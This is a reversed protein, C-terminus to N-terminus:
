VIEQVLKTTKGPVIGEAAFAEIISLPFDAVVWLAISAPVISPQYKDLHSVLSDSERSVNTLVSM